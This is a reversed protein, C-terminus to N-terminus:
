GLLPRREPDDIHLYGEDGGASSGDTARRSATNRRARNKKAKKWGGVRKIFWSIFFGIGIAALTGLISVIATLLTITSVNCGFPLARIEWQETPLPCISSSHFPSFIPLHHQNPVCTSSIACWSCPADGALCGQCSQRRWCVYFLPDNNEDLSHFTTNFSDLNKTAM